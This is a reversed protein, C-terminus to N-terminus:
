QLRLSAGFHRHPGRDSGTAKPTPHGAIEVMSRGREAEDQVTAQTRTRESVAGLTRACAGAAFGVAGAAFGGAAADLEGGTDAVGAGDAVVGGPAVGGAAVGAGVVGCSGKM